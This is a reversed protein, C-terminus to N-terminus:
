SPQDHSPTVKGSRCHATSLLEGTGVTVDETDFAGGLNAGAYFGTWNYDMPPMTGTFLYNGGAAGTLLQTHDTYIWNNAIFNLETRVHFDGSAGRPSWEYRDRDYPAYQGVLCHLRKVSSCPREGLVGAM